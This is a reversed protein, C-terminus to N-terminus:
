PLRLRNALMLALTWGITALLYLAGLKTAVFLVEAWSPSVWSPRWYAAQWPLWAFVVILALLGLLARPSVAARMWRRALGVSMGGDQARAEGAPEERVLAAFLALALSLGLVWRVFAAAWGVAAHLWSADTWGLRAVLWADIEGRASAWWGDFRVTAFWVLAFVALSAVFPLVGGVGRRLLQRGFPGGRLALLAVTEVCGSAVVITAALVASAALMLLNSEPVRLLLWFLGLILAHAGALWGAGTAIRVKM